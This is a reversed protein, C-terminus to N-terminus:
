LYIESDKYVLKEKKIQVLLFIFRRFFNYIKQKQYSFQVSELQSNKDKFIVEVDSSLDQKFKSYWEWVEKQKNKLMESNSQYNSIINDINKWKKVVIFPHDGFIIKFYDIM